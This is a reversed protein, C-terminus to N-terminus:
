KGVQARQLAMRPATIENDRDTARLFLRFWASENLFSWRFALGTIIQILGCGLNSSCCPDSHASDVSTKTTGLAIRGPFTPGTRAGPNFSYAWDTEHGSTTFPLWFLSQRDQRIDNNEKRKQTRDRKTRTLNDSDTYNLSQCSDGGFHGVSASVWRLINRRFGYYELSRVMTLACVCMCVCVCVCPCISRDSRM